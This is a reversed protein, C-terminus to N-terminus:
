PTPTGRLWTSATAVTWAALTSGLGVLLASLAPSGTALAHSADITTRDSADM